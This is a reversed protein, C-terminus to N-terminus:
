AFMNYYYEYIDKVTDSIDYQPYWGLDKRILENCCYIMANEGNRVLSFDIEISIKFSLLFQM